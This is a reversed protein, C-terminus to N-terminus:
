TQDQTAAIDAATIVTMSSAIQAEPTPTRTATVVVTELDISTQQAAADSALLSSFLLSFTGCFAAIIPMRM